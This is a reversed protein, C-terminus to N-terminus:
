RNWSESREDANRVLMSLCRLLTTMNPLFNGWGGLGRTGTLLTQGNRWKQLRDQHGKQPLNLKMATNAAKLKVSSSPKKVRLFAQLQLQSFWASCSPQHNSSTMYWKHFFADHVLFHNWAEKLERSCNETWLRKALNMNSHRQTFLLIELILSIQNVDRFMDLDLESYIM